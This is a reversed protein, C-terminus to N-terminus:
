ILFENLVGRERTTYLIHGLEKELNNNNKGKM